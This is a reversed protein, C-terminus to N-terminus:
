QFPLYGEIMAELDNENAVTGQIKQGGVVLIPLIKGLNSWVRSNVNLREKVAESGIGQAVAEEGILGVAFDWADSVSPKQEGEMMWRHFKPFADPDTQWVTLALQAHKCSVPNQKGGDNVLYPNCSKDSAIPVVVIALQDPYRELFRELIPYLKRCNECTYDLVEVIAHEANRNGVVLAQAFRNSPPQNPATPTTEPTSESPRADQPPENPAPEIENPAPGNQPANPLNNPLSNPSDNTPVPKQSNEEARVEDSFGAVGELADAGLQTVEHGVTPFLTQTLVLGVTALVGACAWTMLGGFRVPPLPASAEDTPIGPLRNTRWAVSDAKAPRWKWAVLLAIALGCSHVTLCFWCLKGVTFFQLWTFWVGASAAAFAATTLTAQAARHARIRAAAIRWLAIFLILCYIGAGAFAVPIGLVKSWGSGLVEDCSFLDANGCGILKGQSLSHFALYASIVVAVAALMTIALDHWSRDALRQNTQMTAPMM